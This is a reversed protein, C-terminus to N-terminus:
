NLKKRIAVFFALMLLFLEDLSGGGGSSTNATPPKSITQISVSKTISNSRNESDTVTLVVSYVGNATYTHSPSPETSGKGDGFDWSYTKSGIGRTSSDGFSATGKTIGISFDAIPTTDISVTKTITHTEMANNTITLSLSFNGDTTYAHTPSASTDLSTSDGFDWSYSLNTGNSRSNNTTTLSRMDLQYDFKAIIQVNVKSLQITASSSDAAQSLVEINLGNAPLVLGSAPKSSNSFDDQDSFLSKPALHNDNNYSSQNYLGFAADRVQVSSGGNGILNQDADVLGIFGFGPHASVDNDSYGQNAFWILVGADYRKSILGVDVQNHSRLQIYYNQAKGDRTNTIRQFGNLVVSAATEAGDLLSSAGDVVLSINDFAFGYDGTNTDTYYYYKITVTQGAYASLDYTLDVWGLPGEAGAIDLSKGSIYNISTAYQPYQNAYQNIAITHNGVIAQNNVMVQVYDWDQEISWRAKMSLSIATGTPVSLSFSLSTRLNDGADSFYQYSGSYPAGFDILPDPLLVKLQNIGTSHNVAEVLNFTQPGAALDAFNVVQQNTFNTGHRNQLYDKSHTSFDIPQSGALSGTWSGGAMLSWNAVPNGDSSSGTDYEDRLGLDHGFEHVVVGTAADIPEITYGFLKKGTGPITFGMTTADGTSNVFFRHSWIADAGLVGGGAEEGISSHFVNVHDIFGDAENVIGDNDLDYPDELDYDALNINNAAVAKAVAEEILKTPNTDDDNNSADNAGYFDSNNDATVWGFVDGTYFFLDGTVKQYYQHASLLNQNSPGTYGTNSFMLQRYHDVSYSTYYMNTDSSTLRNNNFPLDPFDILVSLVRVTKTAQAKANKNLSSLAKPESFKDTFSQARAHKVYNLVAADIEAQSATLKLEGRKILWYVIQQQNIVGPDKPTLQSPLQSAFSLQSAIISVLVLITKVLKM